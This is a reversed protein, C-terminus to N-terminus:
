RPVRFADESRQTSILSSKTPSNVRSLLTKILYFESYGVRCGRCFYIVHKAMETKEKVGCNDGIHSVLEAKNNTDLVECIDCSYGRLNTPNKILRNKRVKEELDAKKIRVKTILHIVAEEISYFFIDSPLSVLFVRDQHQALHKKEADENDRFYSSCVRCKKHGAM